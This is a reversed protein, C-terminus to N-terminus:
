KAFLSFIKVCQCFLRIAQKHQKVGDLFLMQKTAMAICKTFRFNYYIIYLLNM